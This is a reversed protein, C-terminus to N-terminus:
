RPASPGCAATSPAVRRRCMPDMSRIAARSKAIQAPSRNLARRPLAPGCRRKVSPAAVNALDGGGVLAQRRQEGGGGGAGELKLAIYALAEPREAGIARGVDYVFM